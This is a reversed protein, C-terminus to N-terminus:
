SNKEVHPHNIPLKIKEKLIRDFFEDIQEYGKGQEGTIYTVRKPTEISM